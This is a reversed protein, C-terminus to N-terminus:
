KNMQGSWLYKVLVGTPWARPQSSPIYQHYSLCFNQKLLKSELLLCAFALFSKLLKLYYYMSHLFYLLIIIYLTASTYGQPASFPVYSSKQPHKTETLPGQRSNTLVAEGWSCKYIMQELCSDSALCPGWSDTCPPKPTLLQFSTPQSCATGAYSTESM